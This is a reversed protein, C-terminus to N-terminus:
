RGSSQVMGVAVLEVELQSGCFICEVQKLQTLNNCPGIPFTRLCNTCTLMVPADKVPSWVMSSKTTRRKLPGTLLDAIKGLFEPVAYSGKQFFADALPAHTRESAVFEGSVAITPIDPFRSRLVTLLEFGNMNPMRLDTVVLDPKAEQLRRLAIFGDEAVMVRYGAQELIASLVLRINPEDDVLLVLKENV